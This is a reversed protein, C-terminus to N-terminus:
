CPPPHRFAGARKKRRRELNSTLGMPPRSASLARVQRPKGM